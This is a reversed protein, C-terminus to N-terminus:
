ATSSSNTENERHLDLTVCHHGGGLTRSHRLPINISEVDYKALAETLAPVNSDILATNPDLMLFNLQIYVSAYPYNLFQKDPMHEKGLWIIDWDKFVKPLNEPTIKDKNLVVLGERVPVVTADIHVGTYSNTVEVTYDPFQEQLWHAGALNGSVSELYLLTNNLRSVNAADFFIGQDRPVTLVRGANEFIWPYATNEIEREAYLMNCDVVTDGVVLLRDRPCYNYMGDIEQFNIHDPRLVKVGRQELVNCFNDLDEQSEEIVQPDAPGSPVPTERWLTTEEQNRFTGKTPWNADTASGVVITRLSDWENHTSIKMLQM